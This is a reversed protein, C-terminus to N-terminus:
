NILKRKKMEFYCRATAKMDDKANHANEFGTKFLYYYLEELKPWKYGHPGDIKCINTSSQMTCLKKIDSLPNYNHLRYFEAGLVKEDFSMNHAILLKAKKLKEKFKGLVSELDEGEVYAKETTIGHVNSAEKPIVFNDPKIIVTNSELLNEDEDYLQWAFQVLRPWNRTDSAPAKWNNPIGTTETDIFLLYKKTSNIRNVLAAKEELAEPSPKVKIIEDLLELAKELNDNLSYLGYITQLKFHAKEHDYDIKICSLFDTAAKDNRGIAYYCTGRAFYINIEDKINRLTIDFDDIAASYQGTNFYAYGRVKHAQTFEIWPNEDIAITMYEIALEYNRNRYEQVGKNYSHPNLTLDM